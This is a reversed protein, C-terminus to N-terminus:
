EIKNNKFIEDIKKFFKDKFLFIWFKLLLLVGILAIFLESGRIIMAFATAVSAGFGLSSFAFIQIAEHSGLSTPIPITQALYIFGLISLAPLVSIKKGLFFILLFVRLYMAAARLFSIGVVKWMKKNKLRFFDFVEREVDRFQSNDDKILFSIISKKKICRLYFFSIGLSFGLFAGGFVIALRAPPFGISFFLAIGGILIVALSVTWELIRDIVISAMGKPWPVGKKEKLFYARFFEGGWVLVPALYMLAYGSLYAGFLDKNSIDVGREELIAKWKWNGIVATLLTIGLILIVKRGNFVSLSNEIEQAGVTRLVLGFIGLGIFLSILFLLFKKM